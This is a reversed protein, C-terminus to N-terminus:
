VFYMKEELKRHVGSSDESKLYARAQIHKRVRDAVLDAYNICPVISIAKTCRAFLFSLRFCLAQIADVGFQNEDVLVLYHIPRSTGKLGGINKQFFLSLFNIFCVYKCACNM